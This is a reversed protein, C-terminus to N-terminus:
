KKYQKRWEEDWEYAETCSVKILRHRQNRKGEPPPTMYDGYMMTKCVNNQAFAYAITTESLGSLAGFGGGASMFARMSYM